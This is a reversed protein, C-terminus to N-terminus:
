VDSPAVPLLLTTRCTHCRIEVDYAECISIVELHLINPSSDENSLHIDKYMQYMTQIICLLLRTQVYPERSVSTKLFHNSTRFGTM